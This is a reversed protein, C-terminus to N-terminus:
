VRAAFVVIRYTAWGAPECASLVLGAYNLVWVEHPRVVDIRRVRYNVKEVRILDGVRLQDLHRFPREYTTRHGAIALTDRDRYYPMPGENLTTALHTYLGIRPVYITSPLERAHSLPPLLGFVAVGM